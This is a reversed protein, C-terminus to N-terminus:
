VRDSSVEPDPVVLSFILGAAVLAVAVTSFAVLYAMASGLGGIAFIIAGALIPGSAEGVDWITGFVGLAAGYNGVKCLDTVLATTSPTVIAMGVGFIAGELFLGAVHTTLPVLPLMAVCLALGVLIVPKRGLRDSIRGALPKGAMAMVLPVWILIGVYADSLQVINKAYLPLFGMLAGVGLFMAAEVSSAIVIARNNLVEWMGRQFQTWRGGKPEMSDLGRRPPPSARGIPLRLALLFASVGLVGVIVYTVYFKYLGPGALMGLVIGGLLPGFASGFENASAFWGLKEGRGEKFLDAVAASAVPSFIATALGHLFRLSLLTYADQVLLYFFPPFAFFAAGLLLMRRRGLVDSLAGAPFKILVGTLTSAGIILGILWADAGLEAAFRPLVPPRAMQYGLRASFGVLCLMLFPTLVRPM